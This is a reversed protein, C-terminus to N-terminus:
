STWLGKLACGRLPVVGYPCLGTLACGRLPVSPPWAFRGRVGPWANRGVVMVVVTVEVAAEVVKAAARKVAERVGGCGAWRRGRAARVVAATAAATAM